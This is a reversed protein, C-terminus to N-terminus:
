LGNVIWFPLITLNHALKACIQVKMTLGIKTTYVILHHPSAEVAFVFSVIVPSKFIFIVSIAKITTKFNPAKMPLLLSPYRFSKALM